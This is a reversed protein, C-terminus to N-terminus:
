KFTQEDAPFIGQEVDTKFRKVADIILGAGDLYQKVFRPRFRRYMGLLDYCVLVQGDCHSGAGIGITPVQLRESITKSLIEPVCELVVGFCGAGQFALANDIIEQAREPTKGQVKFGGLEQATQPTLGAHGMVPIGDGPLGGINEVIGPHWEVKVADAGADMLRRANERTADPGKHCTGYPMDAVVLANEVGRCVAEVHYAMEELSVSRTDERGLEVNSLSDGVLVIDVGAADILDAMVYSYGTVMVIKESRKKKNLIDEVTM